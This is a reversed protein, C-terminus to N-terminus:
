KPSRWRPQEPQGADQIYDAITREVSAVPLGLVRDRDGAPVPQSAFHGEKEAPRFEPGPPQGM